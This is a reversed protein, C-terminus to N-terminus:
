YYGLWVVVAVHIIVFIAVSISFPRHIIHWGRFLSQTKSLFLIRKSVAAQTSALRITKELEANKTRVLGGGFASLGATKMGRRRLSWIRFPRAIDLAVMRSVARLASMQQIEGSEPLKFLEKVEPLRFVKQLGLEELLSSKLDEMEKLSMEAASINRPIQAYFYRGVIGSAVLAIMTWYAMGALGSYRFASHFTVLLPTMLGLLIHFDFWNKTKGIRGLAPWYKRLPYAYVLIFLALGLMGTKLGLTGSSKLYPQKPSFPRHAHDLGYYDWGFITLAVCLGVLLAACLILYARQRKAADPLLGSRDSSRNKGGAAM